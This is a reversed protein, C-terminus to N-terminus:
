QEVPLVLELAEVGGAPDEPTPVRAAFDHQGLVDDVQLPEDEHVGEKSLRHLRSLQIECVMKERSTESQTVDHGQLRREAVAVDGGRKVFGLPKAIPLAERRIERIRDEGVVDGDAVNRELVEQRVIGASPGASAINGFM